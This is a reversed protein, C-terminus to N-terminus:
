QSEAIQDKLENLIGSQSHRQHMENLQGEVSKWNTICFFSFRPDPLDIKRSRQYTIFAFMRKFLSKTVESEISGSDSGGGTAGASISMSDEGIGLQSGTDCIITNYGLMAGMFTRQTRIENINDFLIRRGDGPIILHQTFIVRHNTIAYHFSRQYFVTLVVFLVSWFIGFTLYYFEDLPIFGSEIVGLRELINDISLIMPTFTVVLLYMTTWKGSTAGNLMRNLWTIALMVVVFGFNGVKGFSIIGDIISSMTTGDDWDMEFMWHAFLILLAVGYMPTFAFISPKIDQLIDEDSTLRFKDRLSASTDKKDEKPVEETTPTETTEEEASSVEEDSM